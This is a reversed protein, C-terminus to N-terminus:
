KRINDIKSKIERAQEFLAEDELAITESKEVIATLKDL